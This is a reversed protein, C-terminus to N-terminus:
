GPPMNDLTMMLLVVTLFICMCCILVNRASSRFWGDTFMGVVGALITGTGSALAWWTLFM